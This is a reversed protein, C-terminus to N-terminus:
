EITEYLVGIAERFLEDRFIDMIKGPMYYVDAFSLNGHRGTMIGRVSVKSSFKGKYYVIMSEQTRLFAIVHPDQGLPYVKTKPWEGNDKLQKIRKQLRDKYKGSWCALIEAETGFKQKTVSSEYFSLEPSIGDLNEGARLKVNVPEIDFYIRLYNESFLNPLETKQETSFQKLVKKNKAPSEIDVDLAVWKTNDLANPESIIPIPFRVYQKVNGYYSTIEDFLHTMGIEHTILYRNNVCKLYQTAPFGREKKGSGPDTVEHTLFHIGVYPGFRVQYFFVLEKFPEWFAKEKDSLQKYSKSEKNRSYGPEYCALVEEKNGARWQQFSRILAYEPYQWRQKEPLENLRDILQLSSPWDSLSGSPSLNKGYSGFIFSAACTIKDEVKALPITVRSVKCDVISNEVGFTKSIGVLVFLTLLMSYKKM